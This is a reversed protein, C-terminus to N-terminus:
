DTIEAKLDLLDQKLTDVAYTRLQLMENKCEMLQTRATTFQQGADVDSNGCVGQKSNEMGTKFENYHRNASQIMTNYQALHAELDTTDYGETKFKLAIQEINQYVYEFTNMYKEQSQNYAATVSDVKKTVDQCKQSSGSGANESANLQANESQAYVGAFSLGLVAVTVLLINKRM